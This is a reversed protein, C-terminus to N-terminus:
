INLKNEGLGKNEIELFLSKRVQAKIEDYLLQQREGMTCWLIEETKEPLDAAVQAKNRKLLFPSVIQQLQQTKYVDGNKDISQAYEKKFFELSGLLGPVLFEMQAFLETTNNLVPTGTLAIRMDANLQLIAKTTLANTNKVNHSEDAIIIEWQYKAFESIDNRLTGYSVICINNSSNVFQSLSRNNGNHFYCGITPAFKEIEKQWNFTLTMPCAIIIKCDLNQEISSCIYAITQLTKGLGMDDALCAGAGIESLLQLWEYGKIQYPRMSAKLTTPLPYISEDSQQWKIWLDQWAKTTTPLMKDKVSGENLGFALWKSVIIEEQKVKAHKILRAYQDIWEDTFVAISHDNLLITNQGSQLLKQVVSLKIKEDGFYISIKARIRKDNEEIVTFVTEPTHPSYRFHRLLEMGIVAVDA